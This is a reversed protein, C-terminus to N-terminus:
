VEAQPLGVVITIFISESSSVETKWEIIGGFLEIVRNMYAFEIVDLPSHTMYRRLLGLVEDADEVRVIMDLVIKCLLDSEDDDDCFDM